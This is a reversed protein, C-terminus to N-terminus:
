RGTASVQVSSHIFGRSLSRCGTQCEWSMSATTSGAYHPSPPCVKKLIGLKCIKNLDHKGFKIIDARSICGCLRGLIMLMIIDKLRHRFNRRDSRRFDLVYSAFYMLRCLKKFSLATNAIFSIIPLLKCLRFVIVIKLGHIM